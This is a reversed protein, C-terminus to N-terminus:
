GGGVFSLFEISDGDKVPIEGWTDQKVLNFNYEVILSAPDHGQAIVLDMLTPSQTELLTGNLNIQM